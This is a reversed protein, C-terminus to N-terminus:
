WVIRLLTARIKLSHKYYREMAVLGTIVTSAAVFPCRAVATTTFLDLFFDLDEWTHM